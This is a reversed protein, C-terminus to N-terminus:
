ALNKLDGHAALVHSCTGETPCTCLWQDPISPHRFVFYTGTDGEVEWGRVRKLRHVRGTTLLRTAKDVISM